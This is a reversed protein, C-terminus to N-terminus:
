VAEVDDMGEGSTFRLKTICTIINHRTTFIREIVPDPRYKLVGIAAKALTVLVVSSIIDMETVRDVM